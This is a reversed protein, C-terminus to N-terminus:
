LIVYKILVVKEILLILSKQFLRELELHQKRNEELSDRKTVGRLYLVCPCVQKVKGRIIILHLIRSLTLLVTGHNM